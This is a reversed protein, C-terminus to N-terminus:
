PPPVPYDGPDDNDHPPPDYAPYSGDPRQKPKPQEPRAHRRAEEQQMTIREWGRRSSSEAKAADKIARDHLRARDSVLSQLRGNALSLFDVPEPTSANPAETVPTPAATPATSVLPRDGVVESEPLNKCGAFGCQAFRGSCIIDLATRVEEKKCEPLGAFPGLPSYRARFQDTLEAQFQYYLPKPNHDNVLTFSEGPQLKDFLDFILPHRQAPPILRIDMVQEDRM